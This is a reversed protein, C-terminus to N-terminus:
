LDFCDGDEGMLNAVGSTMTEALTRTRPLIRGYYFRATRMKAKYYAADDEGRALAACCVAATRAWFYALTVYGSYMLFDFAAAGMEDRNKATAAAIQRSLEGWQQNVEELQVIFPKADPDDRNAECFQAIQQTFRQLIKGKSALVKRGLLDMAQVGSTGEYLTAIRADRVNQEMGWDRIYGHGGFCQLGLNAAEFGAETVFAKAIPTLLALLDEAEARAEDTQGRHSIDVMMGAYGILMRGGEAFAKQTLLMRRVDPHVIIPDAPSDPQKAGSAARMQLREKAYALSNQYALESHALGQLATGLRAINMFTFMCNLGRNPGGVLYGVAGDFNLECTANGRIGMKHEISGCRVGNREGLSGDEDVIFKPVIFLSIGKTGSPAGAIRALVIHIINEAFDHEGSSVFIKTGSLRYSGDDDPEAKTRLLGLDTGADPETLCMTATWTGEVLRTLYLAKQEDSGHGQLTNIAGHSLGPYMAWAWNASGVMEQMALGVSEPLGGGGYEVPRDMSAWGGEVFARYAEKFGEPTTVEGDKWQCGELDGVANLPALLEECIKAGEELVSKVLDPTAEEFGPLTEYVSHIDLLEERVFRIDRLPAAYQTM